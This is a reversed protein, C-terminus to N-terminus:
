KVVAKGREVPKTAAAQGAPALRAAIEADTLAAPFKGQSIVGGIEYVVTAKAAARVLTLIRM